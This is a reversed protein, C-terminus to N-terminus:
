QSLRFVVIVLYEIGQLKFSIWNIKSVFPHKASMELFQDDYKELFESIDTDTKNQLRLLLVDLFVRQNQEYVKSDLIVFQGVGHNSHEEVEKQELVM